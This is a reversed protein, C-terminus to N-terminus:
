AAKAPKTVLRDAAAKTWKLDRKLAAAYQPGADMARARVAGARLIEERADPDAMACDFTLAFLYDRTGDDIRDPGLAHGDLPM